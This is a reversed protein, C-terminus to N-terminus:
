VGVAAVGEAAEAETVATEPAAEPEAAAAEPGAGDSKNVGENGLKETVANESEKAKARTKRTTPETARAKSKRLVKDKASKPRGRRKGATQTGELQTGAVEVDKEEGTSQVTQEKTQTTEKAKPIRLMIKPKPAPILDEAGAPLTKRLKEYAAMTTKDKTQQM